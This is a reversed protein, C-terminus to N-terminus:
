IIGFDNKKEITKPKMSNSRGAVSVGDRMGIGRKVPCFASEGDFIPLRRFVIHYLEM